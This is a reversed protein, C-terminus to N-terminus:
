GTRDADVHGRGPNFSGTRSPKRGCSLAAKERRVGVATMRRTHSRIRAISARPATDIYNTTILASLRKTQGIETTARFRLVLNAFRGRHRM